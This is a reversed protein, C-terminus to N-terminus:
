VMSMIDDCFSSFCFRCCTKVNESCTTPRVAFQGTFNSAYMVGVISFHPERSLSLGGLFAIFLAAHHGCSGTSGDNPFAPFGSGVFGCCWLIWVTNM